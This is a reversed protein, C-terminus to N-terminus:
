IQVKTIFDLAGDNNEIIYVEWEPHEKQIKEKEAELDECESERTHLYFRRSPEKRYIIEKM